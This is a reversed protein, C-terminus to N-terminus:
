CVNAEFLVVSTVGLRWPSRGPLSALRILGWGWVSREDMELERLRRQSQRVRVLCARMAKAIHLIKPM